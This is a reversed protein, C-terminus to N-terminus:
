VRERCSARGIQPQDGAAVNVLAAIKGIAVDAVDPRRGGAEDNRIRLLFDDAGLLDPQDFVTKLGVAKFDTM